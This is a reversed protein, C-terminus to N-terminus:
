LLVMFQGPCYIHGCNAWHLWTLILTCTCRLTWLLTTDLNHKMIKIISPSIPQLSFSMPQYWIVITFRSKAIWCSMNAAFKDHLSVFLCVQTVTRGRHYASHTRAPLPTLTYGHPCALWGVGPESLLIVPSCDTVGGGAAAPQAGAGEQEGDRHPLRGPRRWVARVLMGAAPHPVAACLFLNNDTIVPLLHWPSFSGQHWQNNVKPKNCNSVIKLIRRKLDEMNPISLRCLFLSLVTNLLCLQLPLVCSSSSLFMARMLQVWKRRGHAQLLLTSDFITEMVPFNTCWWLVNVKAEQLCSHQLCAAVYSGETIRVSDCDLLSRWM